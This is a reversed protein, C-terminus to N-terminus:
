HGYGYAKMCNLYLSDDSAGWSSLIGFLSSTREKVKKRCEAATAKEGPTEEAIEGHCKPETRAAARAAKENDYLELEEFGPVAESNIQVGRVQCKGSLLNVGLAFSGGVHGSTVDKALLAGAGSFALLMIVLLRRFRM